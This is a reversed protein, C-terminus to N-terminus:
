KVVVKEDKGGSKAGVYRNYLKELGLVAVTLGALLITYGLFLWGIM